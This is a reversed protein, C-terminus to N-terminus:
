KKNKLLGKLRTMLSNDWGEPVYHEDDWDEPSCNYQLGLYNELSEIRKKLDKTKRFM